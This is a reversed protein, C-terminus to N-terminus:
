RVRSLAWTAARAFWRAAHVRKSISGARFEDGAVFADLWAEAPERALVGALDFLTLRECGAASAIAVDEALESPARYIPEDSFAGTGVCGVSIGAKTGWRDVARTAAKALLATADRRRLTGGSWGELITTYMMVSVHGSGLVDVPTGLLGQWGTEGPADLAVLPWVAVSTAIERAHLEAAARALERAGTKSGRMSKSALGFISRAEGFPPELDFMVERPRVDAGDLRNCMALALASFEHANHVSAWRGRDDALMPWLSLSIGAGHVARVVEALGDVDWPRVALVLELDHRALLELTRPRVLDRYPLMESYIRRLRVM